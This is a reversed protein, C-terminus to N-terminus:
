GDCHNMLNNRNKITCLVRISLLQRSRNSVILYQTGIKTDFDCGNILQLTFITPSHTEIEATTVIVYIFLYM